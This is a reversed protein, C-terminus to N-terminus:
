APDLLEEVRRRRQEVADWSAGDVNVHGVKRGPRPSKGYSHLHSGPVALIRAAEPNEGILNVM